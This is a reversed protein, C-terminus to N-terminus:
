NLRRGTASRRDVIAMGLLFRAPEGSSLHRRDDEWGEVIYSLGFGEAFVGWAWGNVGGLTIEHNNVGVRLTGKQRVLVCRL